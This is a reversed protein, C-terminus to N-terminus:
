ARRDRRGMGRRGDLLPLNLQADNSVYQSSCLSRGKKERKGITKLSLEAFQGQDSHNEIPFQAIM